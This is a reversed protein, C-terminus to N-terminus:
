LPPQDFKLMRDILVNLELKTIQEAQTFDRTGVVLSQIMLHRWADKPLEGNLYLQTNRELRSIFQAITDGTVDITKLEELLHQM